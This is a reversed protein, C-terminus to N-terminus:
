GLRGQKWAFHIRLVSTWYEVFCVACLHRGSAKTRLHCPLRLERLRGSQKVQILGVIARGVTM